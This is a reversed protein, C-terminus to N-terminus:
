GDSSDLEKAQTDGLTELAEAIRELAHAFVLGEQERGSMERGIGLHWRHHYSSVDVLCDAVNYGNQLM